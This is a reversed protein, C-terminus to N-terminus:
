NVQKEERYLESGITRGASGGHTLTVERFVTRALTPLTGHVRELLVPGNAPISIPVAEIPVTGRERLLTLPNPIPHTLEYGV